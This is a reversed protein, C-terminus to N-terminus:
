AAVKQELPHLGLTALVQALAHDYSGTLRARSALAVIKEADVPSLKTTVKRVAKTPLQKPTIGRHKWYAQLARMAYAQAVPHVGAQHAATRARLDERWPVYDLGTPKPGIASPSGNDKLYKAVGKCYGQRYALLECADLWSPRDKSADM